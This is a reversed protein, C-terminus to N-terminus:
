FSGMQGKKLSALSPDLKIAEDCLRQGKSTEGKKQFSMGIMYLAKGNTKDNQLIRDWYNIAEDYNKKDYYAEAIMSLLNADSPRRQLLNNLTEIGRDFQGAELYAIGLNEMYVNNKPYGKEGALLIYKLSNANDYMANCMMGLEFVWDFKTSDMEIAKLYYPFAQKFNQMNLYCRGLLFQVEANKPDDTAAVALNKIGNGYDEQEYYVKGLYFSIKENPDLKKLANAYTVVDNYQRFNFSLQMLQKYNQASADGLDILKKYTSKAEFYKRLDMYASALESLVAKNNADYKLAKEFNKLSEMRRGNQKETLGKQLFFQTSDTQAFVFHSSIVLAASLALRIM